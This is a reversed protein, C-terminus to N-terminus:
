DDKNVGLIFQKMHPLVAHRGDSLITYHDLADLHLMEANKIMSKYREGIEPPTEVDASGHLLLTPCAIRLAQPSLDENVAKILTVRMAGAKQYDPSGFRSSDIPLLHKVRKGAKYIAIKSNLIITELMSRRRPLGAAALMILGSLIDPRAAAIQVGVRCGYSHGAWIIARGTYHADIFAAIAEAYDASGWQSGPDHADHPPIPSEGFGPLDILIHNAYPALAEALPLFSTHDQAWGHAWVMLPKDADEGLVRYHLAFEGHTCTGKFIHLSSAKEAQAEKEVSRSM